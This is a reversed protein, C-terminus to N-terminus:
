YSAARTPNVDITGGSCVDMAAPQGTPPAAVIVLSTSADPPTVQLQAVESCPMQVDDWSLPIYAHGAIPHDPTIPPTGAPLGVMSETAPTNLFFSNTTWVVHTPLAHGAADLLQLGAYGYLDCDRNSKNRVEITASVNGAAAGEEIVAMELVSTDCRVFPLTPSPISLPSAAVAPVVSPSAGPSATGNAVASSPTPQHGTAPSGPTCAGLVVAVGVAMLGFRRMRTGVRLRDGPNGESLTPRFTMDIACAM